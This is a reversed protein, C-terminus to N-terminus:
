PHNRESVRLQDLLDAVAATETPGRGIRSNPGNSDPAGDYDRLVASWDMGREPIPPCVYETVIYHGQAVGVGPVSSQDANQAAPQSERSPRARLAAYIGDRMEELVASAHKVLVQKILDLCNEVLFAAQENFSKSM